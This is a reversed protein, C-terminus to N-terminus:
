VRHLQPEHMQWRGHHLWVDQLVEQLQPLQPEQMQGTTNQLWVEQLEGDGGKALCLVRLIHSSM